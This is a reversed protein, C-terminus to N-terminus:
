WDRSLDAMCGSGLLSYLTGVSREVSRPDLVAPHILVVDKQTASQGSHALVYPLPHEVAVEAQFPDHLVVTVGDRSEACVWRLRCSVASQLFLSVFPPPRAADALSWVVAGRLQLPHQAAVPIVARRM